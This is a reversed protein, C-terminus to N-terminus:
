RWLVEDGFKRSQKSLIIRSPQAAAVIRAIAQM